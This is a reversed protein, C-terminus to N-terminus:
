SIKEFGSGTNTLITMGKSKSSQFFSFPGRNRSGGVNFLDILREGVSLLQRIASLLIWRIHTLVITM